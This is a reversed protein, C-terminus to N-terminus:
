KQEIEINFASEIAQEFGQKYSWSFFVLLGVFIVFFISGVLSQLVGSIFSNKVKSLEAKVRSDFELERKAIDEAITENLFNQTLELAQNKYLELQSDSNSINIFHRLDNDDPPRNNQTEFNKIFEIKQRKYISYAIIGLVDNKDTVLKRYIFNYQNNHNDMKCAILSNRPLELLPM